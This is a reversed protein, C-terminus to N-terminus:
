LGAAVTSAALPRGAVATRRLGAALRQARGETAQPRGRWSSSVMQWLVQGCVNAVHRQCSPRVAVWGRCGIVVSRAAESGALGTTVPRLSHGKRRQLKDPSQIEQETKQFTRGQPLQLTVRGMLDWMNRPVETAPGM